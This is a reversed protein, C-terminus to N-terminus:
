KKSLAKIAKNVSVKICANETKQLGKRRRKFKKPKLKKLFPVFRNDGTKM